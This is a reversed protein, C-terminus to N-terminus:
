RNYFLDISIQTGIGPSTSVDFDYGEGYILTLRRHVNSIGVHGNQAAAEKYKELEEMTMGAGNDAVTLHLANEDKKIEIKLVGMHDINRFGHLIANEALPQLILKPIKEDMVDEDIEIESRFVGKYRGSMIYLYNSIWAYEDEVRGKETQDKYTYQLMESLSVILDSTEYDKNRISILNITNLTNYLFHPNIQMSLAMLQTEKERLSIEYNEYILKSIDREMQNFSETLVRLERQRPLPTDACFDGGAVRKSAKVLAYVPSTMTRSLLIAVVVSLLILLLSFFNKVFRIQSVADEMLNDMPILAFSLFGRGDLSDYCLLYQRGEHDLFCYGSKGNFSSIDEPVQSHIPFVENDSSIVTGEENVLTYLSDRYKISGEFTKRISNEKIHVVLVPIEEIQPLTYYTGFRPFQFNMERVMTLIYRFSYDGKQQLYESGTAEGYDYGSIWVPLGMAEHAINNWAANQVDTVTTTIESSHRGYIWDAAYLYAEAVESQAIFQRSIESTLLRDYRIRDAVTFDNMKSFIDYYFDSGLMLQTSTEVGGLILDLAKNNAIVTALSSDCTTKIINKEYLEVVARQMFLLPVIAFLILIVCLKVALGIPKIAM